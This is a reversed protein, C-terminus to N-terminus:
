IKIVRTSINNIISPKGNLVVNLQSNPNNCLVRIITTISLNAFDTNQTAVNASAVAGAVEAGDQWLALTVNGQETATLTASIDVAYYGPQNINIVNNKLSLKCGCGRTVVGLNVRSDAPTITPQNNVTLLNPM